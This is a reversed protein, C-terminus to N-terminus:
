YVRVQMSYRIDDEICTDVFPPPPLLANRAALEEGVAQLMELQGVHAQTARVKDVTLQKIMEAEITRRIHRLDASCYLRAINQCSNM